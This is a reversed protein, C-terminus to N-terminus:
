SEVRKKVAATLASQISEPSFGRLVQGDVVIVPVATGGSLRRLKEMTNPSSDVDHSTYSLSNHEFYKRAKECVGCWNAEYMEIQVASLAAKVEPDDLTREKTEPEGELPVAKVIEVVQYEEAPPLPLEGAPQEEDAKEEAASAAPTQEASDPSEAPERVAVPVRPRREPPQGASWVFYAALPAVLLGVAAPWFRVIGEPETTPLPAARSL